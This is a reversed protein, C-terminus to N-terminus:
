ERPLPDDGRALDRSCLLCAARWGGQRVPANKSRAPSLARLARPPRPLPPSDHHPFCKWTTVPSATVRGAPPKHFLLGDRCGRAFRASRRFRRHKQGGPQGRSPHCLSRKSGRGVRCVSRRCTPRGSRAVACSGAFAANTDPTGFGGVNACPRCVNPPRRAAFHLPVAKLALPSQGRPLDFVGNAQRHM